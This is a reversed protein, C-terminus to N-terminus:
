KPTADLRAAAARDALVSVNPNEVRGAPITRDHRSLRALADAKEAGTIVFLIARAHNLVPYTL